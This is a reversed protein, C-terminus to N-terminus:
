ERLFDERVNVFTAAAGGIRAAAEDLLTETSACVKELAASSPKGLSVLIAANVEEAIEARGHLAFLHSIPSDHINGYAFSASIERLHKHIHPRRDLKWEQQLEQGYTVLAMLLQDAKMCATKPPLEQSVDMDVDDNSGVHRAAERRLQDDLEMQTDSPHEHQPEVDTDGHGNSGLSDVSKNVTAPSSVFTASALEAYKRTMEVYKRCRLRFYSDRNREDDFLTPYYASLYKLAREIEGDLICKRIRQRHIAHQDDESSIRFPTTHDDFAQQREEVDNAFAKATEVYGEHALYQGILNHILANEDDPPHLSSVDARDIDGLINQREQEVLGDIDFVFPTKGFNIRLHEGPKKMGVMPFMGDLKINHFATGLHTGNKTFFATQTRFNVGCGIVDQSTFKPGYAKGTSNCAFSHGDDGHYAWSDQEWGPLRGLPAKRTSFGIGIQADKARSLVTAEFYFIGAERPIPWDSRVSGAEQDSRTAGSLRVETGDALIELGTWKDDENWRSPLPQLREEESSSPPMREVVDQMVGRHMHQSPMKNLSTASPSTSLGSQYARPTKTSLAKLEAVHEEYVQQLRQVHRSHRLYSPTYFPPHDEHDLCGLGDYRIADGGYAGNGIGGITSGSGTDPRRGDDYRNTGAMSDWSSPTLTTQRLGRERDRVEELSILSAGSPDRSHASDAAAANRGAVVTAYSPRRNSSYYDPIPRPNSPDSM